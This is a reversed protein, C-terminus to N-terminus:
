KISKKYLESSIHGELFLKEITQKYGANWGVCYGVVGTIVIFVLTVILDEM